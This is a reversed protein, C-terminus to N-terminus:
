VLEGVWDTVRERKEEERCTRYEGSDEERM